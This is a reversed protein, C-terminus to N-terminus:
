KTQDRRTDRGPLTFGTSVQVVTIYGISVPGKAPQRFRKKSPKFDDEEEEMSVAQAAGEKGGESKGSRPPVGGGAVAANSGAVSASDGAVSM